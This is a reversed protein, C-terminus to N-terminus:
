PLLSILEVRGSGGTLKDVRETLWGVLAPRCSVSLEDASEIFLELVRSLGHDEVELPGVEDLILPVGPHAIMGRAEEWAWRFSEPDFFFKRFRFWSEAQEGTGVGQLRALPRRRRSPLSVLDFGVMGGPGMAKESVFGAAGTARALAYLYSSKGSEKRGTVIRIM